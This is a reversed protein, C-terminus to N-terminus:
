QDQPHWVADHSAHTSLYWGPAYHTDYFDTDLHQAQLYMLLHVSPVTGPFKGYTDFVYQAQKTVLEVLGDAPLASSRVEPSERWPGPTQPDFPGGPGWKRAVYREVAERMDAVHPPTLTTFVRDLGTANPL